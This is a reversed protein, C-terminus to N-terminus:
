YSESSRAIRKLLCATAPTKLWYEALFPLNHLLVVGIGLDSADCEIVFPQSIDPLALVHTTIM